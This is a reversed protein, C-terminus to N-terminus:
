PKGPPKKAMAWLSLNGIERIVKQLTEMSLGTKHKLLVIIASESLGSAALGKSIDGMVSLDSLIKDYDLRAM